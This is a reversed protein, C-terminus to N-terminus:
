LTLRTAGEVDDRRRLVDPDPRGRTVVVSGDAAWVDVATRLFSQLSPDELHVRVASPRPQVLDAYAITTAGYRLAANTPDPADWAHFVDPHTALDAAEDVVGPAVAPTARRALAALTVLAADSARDTAAPDDTIVADPAQGDLALTAGVSWVALSWYASRWHAPLDLLVVRAPGIDWEDQLLNAAKAVWNALVRGSLEIREGATPSPTDDYYTIRPRAPDARVMAALVDPPM